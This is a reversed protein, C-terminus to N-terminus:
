YSVRFLDTSIQDFRRRRAGVFIMEPIHFYYASYSRFFFFKLIYDNINSFNNFNNPYKVENEPDCGTKLILKDISYFMLNCRGRFGSRTNINNNKKKM